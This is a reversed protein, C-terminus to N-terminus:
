SPRYWPRSFLSSIMRSFVSSSFPSTAWRSTGLACLQAAQHVSDRAPHIGVGVLMFSGVTRYKEPGRWLCAPFHLTEETEVDLKWCTCSIKFAQGYCMASILKIKDSWTPLWEALPSLDMMLTVM